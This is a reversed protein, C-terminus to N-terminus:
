QIVMRKRVIHVEHVDRDAKRSPSSMAEWSCCATDASLLNKKEATSCWRLEPFSGTRFFRKIMTLIRLFQKVTAQVELTGEPETRGEKLPPPFM